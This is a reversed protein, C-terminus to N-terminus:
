YNAALRVQILSEMRAQQVEGDAKLKEILQM